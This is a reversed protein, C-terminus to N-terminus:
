RHHHSFPHHHHEDKGLTGWYVGLIILCTGIILSFSVRENLLPVAITAAVAPQLYQFLNAKIIGIKQIGWEYLFFATITSLITIYFLGIIGVISIKFIWTPNQLYDLLAPILFTLIGTAFSVTIVILPSYKELVQKALLSGIVFIISSLLILTNGVLSKSLFNGTFILPFGIITIAGILGLIIGLFNVWYIKERLIIWGVFVSLFPVVLSLVSANITSTRTLGEYFLTIHLSVTLVGLIFLKPLDHVNIKLNNRHSWIFPTLLICSITFRLFALSMVPFEQLTVKAIIFNIGWITHAALLAFTAGLM